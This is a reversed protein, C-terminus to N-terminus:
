FILGDDLALAYQMSRYVAGIQDASLAASPSTGTLIGAFAMSGESTQAAAAGLPQTCLKFTNTGLARNGIGAQTVSQNDTMAYVSVNGGQAWSIAYFGWANAAGGTLNIVIQGSMMGAVYTTFQNAYNYIYTYVGNPVSCDIMPHAARGAGGAQGPAKSVCMITGNTADAIGTEFGIGQGYCDVWSERYVPGSAVSAGGALEALAAGNILNITPGARRPFCWLKADPMAPLRLGTPNAAFNAGSIISSTPPVLAM